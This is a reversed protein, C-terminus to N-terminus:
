RRQHIDGRGQGRVAATPYYYEVQRAPGSGDGSTPASGVVSAPVSGASAIPVSGISAPDSGASIPGSGMKNTPGSGVSSAWHAPLARPRTRPFYQVKEGYELKWRATRLALLIAERGVKGKTLADALMDRTDIWLLKDVRGDELHQKLAKIEYLMQQETPCRTSENAVAQFVSMADVYLWVKVDMRSEELMKTLVAAPQPGYLCEQFFGALLMGEEAAESLNHLEAAFTSRCVRTQKRSWFDVTLFENGSESGLGVILGRLALCDPDSAKFASDGVMKLMPRGVISTYRLVCKQRKLWKLLKNLSIINGYTPPKECDSCRQLYGVYVIGDARCMCVWSVGGRLSMFQVHLEKTTTEDDDKKGLDAHVIPRLQELYHDMSCEISFDSFQRHMIGGHEFSDYHKDKLPGFHRELVSLLFKHMIGDPPDGGKLDDVHASVVQVLKKRKSSVNNQQHHQGHKKDYSKDEVDVHKVYLLPQAQTPVLGAERLVMDLKLSFAKPAITSGMVPKDTDLVEKVPDFDEFGPCMRLLPVTGPPLELQMSMQGSGTREALQEFTLGRLFAKPIDLMWLRFGHMATLATVARQGWRSTTGSYTDMSDKLRDKFGRATLRARVARKKNIMKWKLVWRMDVINQSEARPKRRLNCLRIWEQLEALCAGNVEAKNEQIDSPTLLPLDHEIVATPASGTRTM